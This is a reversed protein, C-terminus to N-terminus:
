LHREAFLRLEDYVRQEFPSRDSNRLDGIAARIHDQWTERQRPPQQDPDHGANDLISM